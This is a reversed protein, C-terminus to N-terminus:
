RSREVSQRPEHSRRRENAHYGGSTSHRSDARNNNSRRGNGRPNASSRSHPHRQGGRGSSNSRAGNRQFSSRNASSGRRELDTQPPIGFESEHPHQVVPIHMRITREVAHFYPREDVMVFSVATGSAGARATRGIRHVYTEAENPMDYNIVHSIDDVDIGRAAIDTAVLVRVSGTKFDALARERASQSKNGHIVDVGIGQRELQRALKNAGHKTRTFVLARKVSRDALMWKLLDFKQEKEVFCVRQTIKEVTTAAPTVEVRVPDTLINDALEQIEAPMTASFFLTQRRAPVAAIVRRVDHIFGMDLMRDAEDLVLIEVRELRVYGQGMLDLLRGPTAILIDVGRRLKQVQPEQGVGGYVVAANLPLHRGYARFSDGIQAALERTPALILARIPRHKAGQQQPIPHRSLHQLIPLAFAATKGTGTQACGLVDRGTLAHPIAQVQIPTPETYGEERVARLLPESLNLHEFTM